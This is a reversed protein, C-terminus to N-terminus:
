AGGQHLHGVRHRRGRLPVPATFGPDLVSVGRFGPKFRFLRGALLFLTAFAVAPVRCLWALRKLM